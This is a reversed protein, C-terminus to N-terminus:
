VDPECPQVRPSVHCQPTWPLGAMSTAKAFVRAPRKAGASRLGDSPQVEAAKSDIERGIHRLLEGPFADAIQQAERPVNQTKLELLRAAITFFAVNRLAAERVKEGQAAQYQAISAGLMARTLGEVDAIFRGMEALRLAYDYLVHHTHRLADTTVFVPWGAEEAEQYAEYLQQAYGQTVVFGNEELAAQLEADLWELRDANLVQGLDFDYGPLSPQADVPVPVYAAFGAPTSGTLDSYLIPQPSPRATATPGPSPGCAVPVLAIWLCFVVKAVLLTKPM